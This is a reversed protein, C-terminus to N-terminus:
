IYPGPGELIRRIINHSGPASFKEFAGSIDSAGRCEPIGYDNTVFMLIGASILVCRDHRYM